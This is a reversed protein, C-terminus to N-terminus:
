FYKSVFKKVISLKVSPYETKVTNYVEREIDEKSLDREYKKFELIVERIKKIM